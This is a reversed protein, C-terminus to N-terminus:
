KPASLSSRCFLKGGRAISTCPCIRTLLWATLLFLLTSRLFDMRWWWHSLASYCDCCLFTVLNIPLASPTFVLSKDLFWSCLKKPFIYERQFHQSKPLVSWGLGLVTLNLSGSHNGAHDVARTGYAKVESEPYLKRGATDKGYWAKRKWCSLPSCLLVPTEYSVDDMWLGTPLPLCFSAVSSGCRWLTAVANQPSFARLSSDRGSLESCKGLLHNM